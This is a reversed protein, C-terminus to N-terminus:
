EGEHNREVEEKGEGAAHQGYGTRPAPRVGPRVPEGSDGEQAPIGYGTRGQDARRQRWYSRAAELYEPSRKRPTKRRALFPPLTGALVQLILNMALKPRERTANIGTQFRLSPKTQFAVKHSNDM